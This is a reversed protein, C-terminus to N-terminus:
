KKRIKKEEWDKYAEMLKDIENINAQQNFAVSNSSKFYEAYIEQNEIMEKIVKIITIKDVKCKEGIEKVELRTFKTGLDLITKKIVMEEKVNHGSSFLFLGALTSFLLILFMYGLYLYLRFSRLYSEHM